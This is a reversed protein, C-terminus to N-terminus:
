NGADARGFDAAEAPNGAVQRAGSEAPQRGVPQRGAAGGVTDAGAPAAVSARAEAREASRRVFGFGAVKQLSALSINERVPLSLVVGQEKRDETVFGIGARIADSRRAPTFRSATWFFMEGFDVLGGRVPLPRDRDPGIRGTRGARRSRRCPGYLQHRGPRGPPVLGTVELVPRGADVVEKPYTEDLDRGVMLRVVDDRASRPSRPTVRCDQRGAAGDRRRRNPVSRGDPALYLRDGIGQSQLRRILRWLNELEHATLTASPEDMALVRANRSTAKAIEVMQRQAVSLTGVLTRVDLPMGLDAMLAQADRRM